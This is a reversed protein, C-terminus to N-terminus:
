KKLKIVLSNINNQKALRRVTNLQSQSHYPGSRVRHYTDRNNISVKQIESEIGILALKAKLRDADQHKRFSGMQLVYSVEERPPVPATRPPIVDVNDDAPTVIEEEPIVVEMEPLITYFEFTPKPAERGKQEISSSQPAPVGPVKGTSLDPGLKLWILSVLFAGAVLGGFLHFLCRGSNQRQKKKRARHKYDAM